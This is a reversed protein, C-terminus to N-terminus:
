VGQQVKPIRRVDDTMAMVLNRSRVSGVQLLYLVRM